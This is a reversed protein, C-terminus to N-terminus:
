SGRGGRVDRGSPPGGTLAGPPDGSRQSSRATPLPDGDACPRRPRLDVAVGFVEVEVARRRSRHLLAATFRGDILALHQGDPALGASRIHSEGAPLRVAHDRGAAVDVVHVKQVPGTDAPCFEVVVQDGGARLLSCGGLRRVTRRRIPDWVSLPRGSLIVGASVAGLLDGVVAVRRLVRGSVEVLVLDPPQAVWVQDATPGPAYGTARSAITRSSGGALATAQVQPPDATILFGGSVLRSKCRGNRVLVLQQELDM